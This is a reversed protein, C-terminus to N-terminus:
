FDINNEYKNKIYYETNKDPLIYKKDPTSAAVFVVAKGDKYIIKWNKNQAVHKEFDSDKVALILDHHYKKFTKEWNKSAAEKKYFTIESVDMYAQNTYTEEYRGDISVLNQPYLKWFAYSGWNFPVLLNGELRNMKIFEIARTPYFGLNISKPSNVIILLFVNILFCYVATKCAFVILEQKESNFKEIFLKKLKGFIFEMFMAYFKYGYVGIIISFFVVHRMHKLALYLTALTSIVQVFDIKKFFDRKNVLWVYIFSPLLLMLQLKTGVVNFFDAKFDIPEWETIYPRKMTTAEILYPWYKYGYPNLLTVPLSLALILFYKGFPKKNLFEGVAFFGVLGMGSLFGAHLNAWLLTTAPFIWILRNNQEPNRRIKELVYLWLSFFLYTFSQCRLTASIGLLVAVLTVFYWGIRYKKPEPFVLQGTKYILVMISFLILVKLSIIGFDGFFHGLNYFVVGSLWEHDVWIPKAPFYTFIDHYVVNGLQSFIKGVAMRHWLDLDATNKTLSFMISMLFLSIYFVIKELPLSNLKKM